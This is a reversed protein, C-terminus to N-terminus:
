SMNLIQLQHQLTVKESGGDEKVTISINLLGFPLDDTASQYEFTLDVINIALISPTVSPVSDANATKSLSYCDYRNIKSDQIIFKIPTDVLYFRQLASGPEFEFQGTEDPDSEQFTVVSAASPFSTDVTLDTLRALNNFQWASGANIELNNISVYVPLDVACDASLYTDRIISTKDATTLPMLIDFGDNDVAGIKLPNGLNPNVTKDEEARYRGGLPARLMELCTDKGNKQCGTRISNPLAQRVDISIKQLIIQATEVLRIRRAVDTYSQMPLIIFQVLFGSLIGTIIIVVVLEVLTFGSQHRRLNLM